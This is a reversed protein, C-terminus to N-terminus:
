LRRPNDKDATISDITVSAKKCHFLRHMERINDSWLKRDTQDNTLRRELARTKVKVDHCEDDFWINSPRERNQM